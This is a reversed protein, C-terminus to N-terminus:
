NKVKLIDELLVLHLKESHNNEKVKIVYAENELIEGHEKQHNQHTSIYHYGEDLITGELQLTEGTLEDTTIFTVRQNKRLKMM